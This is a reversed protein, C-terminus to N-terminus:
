RELILWFIQWSHMVSVSLVRICKEKLSQKNFIQRYCMDQYPLDAMHKLIRKPFFFYILFYSFNYFDILLCLLHWNPIELLSFGCSHLVLPFNHPDGHSRCKGYVYYIYKPEICPFFVLHKSLVLQLANKSNNLLIFSNLISYNRDKCKQHWTLIMNYQHLSRVLCSLVKTDHMKANHHLM